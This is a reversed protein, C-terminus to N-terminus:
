YECWTSGDCIPCPSFYQGRSFDELFMTVDNADVDTDCSFDGPCPTSNTCTYPHYMNRGFNSLFETLDEADVDLDCDFNGECDCADGIGNGQPPYQDEQLPNPTEPATTVLMVEGTQTKIKRTQTMTMPATTRHPLREMLTMRQYCVSGWGDSDDDRQDPNDDSPCNDCMDGVGDGDQDAQDPNYIGGCNDISNDVGDADFDFPCDCACVCLPDAMCPHLPGLVTTDCYKATCTGVIEECDIMGCLPDSEKCPDVSCENDDDCAPIGPNCVCNACTELGNCWLSDHCDEDNQCECVQHIVLTPNPTAANVAADDWPPIPTWTVFQPFAPITRLRINADGLATCELTVRAIIIDGQADPSAGGGRIQGVVIQLTGVGNPENVLSGWPAEWPGIIGESGDTFARGASVYAINASSSKFDVWVGGSTAQGPADQLYIDFTIQQGINIIAESDFPKTGDIAVTYYQAVAYGTGLVMVIVCLCVASITKM